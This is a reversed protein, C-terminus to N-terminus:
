EGRILKSQAPPVNLGTTYGPILLKLTRTTHGTGDFISWKDAGDEALAVLFSDTQLKGEAVEVISQYPIVVATTKNIKITQLPARVDFSVFKKKNILAVEKEHLRLLRNREREGPKVYMTTPLLKMQADVDGTTIARAWAHALETASQEPTAARVAPLALVGATALILILSLRRMM